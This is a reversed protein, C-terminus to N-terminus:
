SEFVYAILNFRTLDSHDNASHGNCTWDFSFRVMIHNYFYRLKLAKFGCSPSFSGSEDGFKVNTLNIFKGVLAARDDGEDGGVGARDGDVGVVFIAERPGAVLAPELIGALGPDGLEAEIIVLGSHVRGPEAPEHLRIRDPILIPEVYIGIDPVIRHVSNIRSAEILTLAGLAITCLNIPVRTLNMLRSPSSSLHRTCVNQRM